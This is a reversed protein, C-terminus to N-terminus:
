EKVRIEHLAAIINEASEEVVWTGRTSSVVTKFDDNIWVEVIQTSSIWLSNPEEEDTRVRTLRLM